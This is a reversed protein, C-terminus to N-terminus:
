AGAVCTTANGLWWVVGPEQIKRAIKMTWKEGGERRFNGKRRWGDQFNQGERANGMMV